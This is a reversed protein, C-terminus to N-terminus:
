PRRMRDRFGFVAVCRDFIEEMFILVDGQVHLRKSTYYRALRYDCVASLWCCEGLGIGLELGGWNCPKLFCPCNQTDTEPMNPHALLEVPRWM